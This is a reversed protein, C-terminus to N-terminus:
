EYGLRARISSVLAVFTEGTLDHNPVVTTTRDVRKPRSGRLPVTIRLYFKSKDEDGFFDVVAQHRFCWRLGEELDKTATMGCNM